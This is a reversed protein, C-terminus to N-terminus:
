ILTAKSFSEPRFVFVLGRLQIEALHRIPIKDFKSQLRGITPLLQWAHFHANTAMSLVFGLARPICVLNQRRSAFAHQRGCSHLGDRNLASQERM